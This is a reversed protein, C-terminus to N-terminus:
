RFQLPYRSDFERVVKNPAPYRTRVSSMRTPL